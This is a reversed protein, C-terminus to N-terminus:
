AGGANRGQGRGGNQQGSSTGGNGYGGQHGVRGHNNNTLVGQGLGYQAQPQAPPPQGSAVHPNGFPGYPAFGYAPYATMAPGGSTNFQPQAPLMQSYHQLQAQVANNNMAPNM